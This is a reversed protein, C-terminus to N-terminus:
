WDATQISVVGNATKLALLVFVTASSGSRIIYRRPLNEVMMINSVLSDTSATSMMYRTIMIARDIDLLFSLNCHQLSFLFIM